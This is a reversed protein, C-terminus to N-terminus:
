DFLRCSRRRQWRGGMAYARLYASLLGVSTMGVMMSAFQARGEQMGRLFVRQHSALNYTKFQLLAKGLPTNAFLPVDGVSRTVVVSDVEKSIAARYARIADADTCRETNAVRVGDLTEGHEAFERGIRGAMDADIGLYALFRTDDAQGAAAQLIRNQSIISAIAKSADTFISM